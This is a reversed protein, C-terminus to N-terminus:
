NDCTINTPEGDAEEIVWESHPDAGSGVGGITAYRDQAEKIAEELTDAEVVTYASVSVMASLSFKAM